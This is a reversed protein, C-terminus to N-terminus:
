RPLPIKGQEKLLKNIDIKDFFEKSDYYNKLDEIKPCISQVQLLIDEENKIDSPLNNNEKRLSDIRSKNRQYEEPTGRDYCEIDLNELIKDVLWIIPFTIFISIIISGLIGWFGDGLWRILIFLELLYTLIFTINRVRRANRNEEYVECKQSLTSIEKENNYLKWKKDSLIEKQKKLKVEYESKILKYYENMCKEACDNECKIIDIITTM